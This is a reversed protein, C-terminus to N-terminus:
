RASTSAPRGYVASIAVPRGDVGGPARCPRPRGRQGFGLEWIGKGRETENEGQLGSLEMAADSDFGHGGLGM